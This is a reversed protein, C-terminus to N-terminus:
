AALNLLIEALSMESVLHAAESPTMWRRERQGKEPWEDLEREVDLLFVDVECRVTKKATLRKDYRYSGLPQKRIKGLVGAEEFAERAALESAKLNKEPWGKPIVWRRTERSTVLLVQPQGDKVAIPLAAYQTRVRTSNGTMASPTSPNLKVQM